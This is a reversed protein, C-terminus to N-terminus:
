GVSLTKQNTKFDLYNELVHKRFDFKKVERKKNKEVKSRYLGNSVLDFAIPNRKKIEKKM